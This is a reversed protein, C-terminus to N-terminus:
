WALHSLPHQNKPPTNNHRTLKTLKDMITMGALYGIGAPKLIMKQFFPQEPYELNLINKSEGIPVEKMKKYGPDYRGLGSNYLHQVLKPIGHSHIVKISGDHYDNIFVGASIAEVQHCLKRLAVQWHCPTIGAEYIDGVLELIDKQQTNL